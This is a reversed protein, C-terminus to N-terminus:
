NPAGNDIIMRYSFSSNIIKYNTLVNIAKKYGAEDKGTIVLVHRNDGYPILNAICGQGPQFEPLLSRLNNPIKNYLGTIVTNGVTDTEKYNDT